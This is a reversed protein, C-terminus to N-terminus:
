KRVKSIAVLACMFLLFLRAAASAFHSLQPLMTGDEPPVLPLVHQLLNDLSLSANTERM